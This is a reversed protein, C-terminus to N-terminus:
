YSMSDLKVKGRLIYYTSAAGGGVVLVLGGGPFTM